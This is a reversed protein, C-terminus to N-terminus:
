LVSKQNPRRRARMLNSRQRGKNKSQWYNKRGVKRFKLFQIQILYINIIAASKQLKGCIEACFLM